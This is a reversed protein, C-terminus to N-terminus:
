MKGEWYFLSNENTDVEIAGMITYPNESALNPRPGQAASSVGAAVYV